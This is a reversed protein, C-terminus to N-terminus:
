RIMFEKVEITGGYKLHPSSQAIKVAEDQSSASLVFYGGVTRTANNSVDAGDLLLSPQKMEQGDIAMGNQYISQMWHSYEDFMEEPPGPNFNTDQYLVLMYNYDPEESSNLYPFVAYGLVFFALAAAVRYVWIMKNHSQILGESKLKSITEEEMEIPPKIGKLKEFLDREEESLENEDIM